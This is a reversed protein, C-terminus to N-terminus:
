IKIRPALARDFKIQGNQHVPETAPLHWQLINAITHELDKGKHLEKLSKLTGSFYIKGDLIFIVYDAMEEVFSLIHTTVLITKGALNEMDLWKKFEIVGVPDLGNTPEDLILLPNDYMLSLVINSRQRTGGSLNRIKQDLYPELKFSKILIDPRADRKRFDQIMQILEKLKLNDPFRAIQPLYAIQDRYAWEGLIPNQQMAISGKDPIVMGLICKLLTTKGSGNPGLIATIGPKDFDLSVDSLVLKNGFRKSLNKISIM